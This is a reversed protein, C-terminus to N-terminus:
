FNRRRYADYSMKYEGVVSIEEAGPAWVRFVTKGNENHSGLFRYADACTGDAFKRIDTVRDM